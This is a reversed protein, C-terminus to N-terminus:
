SSQLVALTEDLETTDEGLIEMDVKTRILADIAAANNRQGKRTRPERLKDVEDQTAYLGYRAQELKTRAALYNRERNVRRIELDNECIASLEALENAVRVAAIISKAMEAQARLSSSQAKTLEAQARQHKAARMTGWITRPTESPAPAPVGVKDHQALVPLSNLRPAAQVPGLGPLEWATLNITPKIGMITGKPSQRHFSQIDATRGAPSSFRPTSITEFARLRDTGRDPPPPRRRDVLRRTGDSM